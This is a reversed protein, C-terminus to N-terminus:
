PSVPCLVADARGQEETPEMHHVGTLQLPMPQRPKIEVGEWFKYPARQCQYQAIAGILLLAWCTVRWVRTSGKWRYLLLMIVLAMTHARFFKRIQLSEFYNGTVCWNAVHECNSGFLTYKGGFGIEALREAEAVIQDRPLPNLLWSPGFIRGPSPHRVVEVKRGRAFQELTVPRVGNHQKARADYAGFDIVRDDSVYIGHHTFGPRRGMLHDGYEFKAQDTM